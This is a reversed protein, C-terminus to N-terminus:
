KKKTQVTIQLVIFEAPRLPAFGVLIVLCGSDIDNQTMTTSNCQVFYAEQRKKGPLAGEQLISQMFNGIANIVRGWLYSDNPQFVAWQLRQNLSQAIRVALRRVNLYQWEPDQSTTRAGWIQNGQAPFFHLLSIGGALPLYRSADNGV